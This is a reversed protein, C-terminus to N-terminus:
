LENLKQNVEFAKKGTDDYHFFLEPTKRLSSKQVLKRKLIYQM